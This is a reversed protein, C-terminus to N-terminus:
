TVNNLERKSTENEDGDDCKFWTAQYPSVKRYRVHKVASLETYRIGNNPFLQWNEISM